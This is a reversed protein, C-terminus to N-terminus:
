KRLNEEGFLKRLEDECQKEHDRDQADKNLIRAVRRADPINNEAVASVVRSVFGNFVPIEVGKMEPDTDQDPYVLLTDM